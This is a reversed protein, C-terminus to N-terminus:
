LYFHPNGIPEGTETTSLSSEICAISFYIRVLAVYLGLNQILYTSSMKVARGLDWTSIKVLAILWIFGLKWNVASVSIFM